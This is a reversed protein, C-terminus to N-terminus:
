PLLINTLLKCSLGNSTLLLGNLIGAVLINFIWNLVKGESRGRERTNKRLQHIQICKESRGSVLSVRPLHASSSLGDTKTAV